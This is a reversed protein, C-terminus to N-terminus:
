ETAGDTQPHFATSLTSEIGLTKFLEQFTKSTFCPDRDSIVKEPLGFRKFLHTHLLTAIKYSDATEQTPILIVGKTLGNDVISLISNYGNVQPLGVILDM